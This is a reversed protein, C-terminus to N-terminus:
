NEREENNENFFQVGLISSVIIGLIIDWGSTFINSYFILIYILASIISLFLINRSKKIEPFLLSAFMAYLGISLSTQLSVPLIEGVAYGVMTGLAWSCYALVNIAFVFPLTIKEKNFSIVSFTEDTIGFALVPLYKKPIGKFEVALSASMMMHRLNLLFTALIINAATVGASMLDLAMFQSAGAYVMMSLLSTDMFSISTNKSLLGFAMAIPFYGIVIPLGIIIAEKIKDKTNKASEMVM